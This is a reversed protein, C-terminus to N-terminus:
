HLRKYARYSPKRVGEYTMLGTTLGIPNSAPEDYLNFWGLGAAHVRKAIRYAGRLWRAQDRRSVAFTFARNPRDSSVTFESLWLRPGGHRRFRPVRRYARHVERAFVDMDSIDRSGPFGPDEPQRIDPARRSFPNHGYLDLRPPRGNPLRMWRIWKSPYVDGYTFTMGGIVINKRSRHKLAAYAKDLLRAYARPGVRSNPPLPQFVAARNTEGWIMWRHVRRYHRSAAKLFRAYHAPAPSFQTAQGGNAWAPSGKVMLAVKIGYRRGMRVAEDVDAPWRYAPDGPRTPHSPQTPAIRDWVLQYQFVDVGLNRYVRFASSGDPMRTTGWIAKAPRAEAAGPLLLIAALSFLAAVRALRAQMM